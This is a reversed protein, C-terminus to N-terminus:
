DGRSRRGDAPESRPPLVSGIAAGEIESRFFRRDAAALRPLRALAASRYREFERWRQALALQWAHEVLAAVQQVPTYDSDAAIANDALGVTLDVWDPVRAPVGLLSATTGLSERVRALPLPPAPAHAAGHGAGRAVRCVNILNWPSGGALGHRQCLWESLLMWRLAELRLGHRAMDLPLWPELLWLTYGLNAAVSELLTFADSEVACILAARLDGLVQLVMARRATAFGGDVLRARVVLARLNHFECAIRSNIRWLAGGEGEAELSLQRLGAEAAALRRAQHDCWVLGIRALALAVRERADAGPQLERVLARLARRAEGLEGARRAQRARFFGAWARALREHPALRLEGLPQLPTPRRGSGEESRQRADLLAYWRDLDDVAMPHAAAAPSRLPSAALGVFRALEDATASRPGMRFRLQRATQPALWFPGRARGRLPLTAPALTADDGWGVAVGHADLTAFLRSVAMPLAASSAVQAALEQVGVGRGARSATAALLWVVLRGCAREQLTFPRQLQVDITTPM